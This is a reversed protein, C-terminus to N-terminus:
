RGKGVYFSRRKDSEVQASIADRAVKADEIWVGDCSGCVHAVGSGLGLVSGVTTKRLLRHDKPCVFAHPKSM